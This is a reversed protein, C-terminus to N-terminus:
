WPCLQQVPLIPFLHSGSHCAFVSLNQCKLHKYDLSNVTLHCIDNSSSCIVKCSFLCSFCCCSFVPTLHRQARDSSPHSLFFLTRRVFGMGESGINYSVSIDSFRFFAVQNIKQHVYSLIGNRQRWRVQLTDQDTVAESLSKKQTLKTSFKGCLLGQQSFSSM